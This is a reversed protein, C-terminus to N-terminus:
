RSYVAMVLRARTRSPWTAIRRIRTLVVTSTLVIRQQGNRCHGGRCNGGDNDVGAIDVGTIEETM